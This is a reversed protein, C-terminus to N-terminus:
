YFEPKPTRNALIGAVDAPAAQEWVLSRVVETIPLEVRHRESLTQLTRCAQAGEAVMDIDLDVGAVKAGEALVRADGIVFIAAAERVADDALMRATLEPSIGAADGMALALRPRLGSADLMGM